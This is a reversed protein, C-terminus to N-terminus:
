KDIEPTFPTVTRGLAAALPIHDATNTTLITADAPCHLAFYADGLGRCLKNDFQKRPTNKLAHLAKRRRNDEERTSGEIVKLLSELDNPRKRIAPAYACDTRPKCGRKELKISGLEEDYYPSQEPFCTLEQAVETTISRRDKWGRQILRRLSIALADAQARDRDAASLPESLDIAGSAEWASQLAELATSVRNRARLNAGLAGCATIFSRSEALRNYFWIMNALAGATMEKIAYIPVISRAYGRVAARARRRRRQTKFLAEILITTDLYCSDIM